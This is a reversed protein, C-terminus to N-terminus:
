GPSIAHILRHHTRQLAKEWCELAGCDAVACLGWMFNAAVFHGKFNHIWGMISSFAAPIRCAPSWFLYIFLIGTCTLPGHAMLSGSAVFLGKLLHIAVAAFEPNNRINATCIDASSDRLRLAIGCQAARVDRCSWKVRLEMNFAAGYNCHSTQPRQKAARTSESLRM